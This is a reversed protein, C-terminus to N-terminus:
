SGYTLVSGSTIITKAALKGTSMLYDVLDVYLTNIEIQVAAAHVGNGNTVHQAQLTEKATINARKATGISDSVPITIAM